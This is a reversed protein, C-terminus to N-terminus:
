AFSPPGRSPPPAVASQSGRDSSSIRWGVLHSPANAIVLEAPQVGITFLHGFAAFACHGVDNNIPAPVGDGNTVEGTEPNFYAPLEGAGTCITIAIRGTQANHGIMYGVPVLARLAAALFVAALVFRALVSGRALARCDTQPHKHDFMLATM